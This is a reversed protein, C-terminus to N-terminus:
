RKKNYKEEPHMYCPRHFVNAVSNFYLGWIFCSSTPGPGFDAHLWGRFFICKANLIKGQLTLPDESFVVLRAIENTTLLTVEKRIPGNIHAGHVEVM